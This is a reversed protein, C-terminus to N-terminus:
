PDRTNVTYISLQNSSQDNTPRQANKPGPVQRPERRGQQRTKQKINLTKLYNRTSMVQNQIALLSREMESFLQGFVLWYNLAAKDVHELTIENIYAFIKRM